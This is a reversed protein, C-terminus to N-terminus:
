RVDSRHQLTATYKPSGNAAKGGETRFPEAKGTSVKKFDSLSHRSVDRLPTAEVTFLTVVSLCLREARFAAFGSEIGFIM